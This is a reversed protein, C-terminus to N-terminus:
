CINKALKGNEYYNSVVGTFPSGNHLYVPSNLSDTSQVLDKFSVEKEQGSCYYSGFILFTSFLLLNLSLLTSNKIYTRM